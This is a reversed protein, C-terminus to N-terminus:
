FRSFYERRIWDLKDEAADHRSIEQRKIQAFWALVQDGFGQGLAENAQL